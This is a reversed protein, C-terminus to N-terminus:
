LSVNDLSGEVKIKRCTNDYTKCRGHVLNIVWDNGFDIWMEDPEFPCSSVLQSGNDLTLGLTEAIRGNLDANVLQSAIDDKTEDNVVLEEEFRDVVVEGNWLLKSKTAKLLIKIRDNDM